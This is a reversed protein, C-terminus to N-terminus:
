EFSFGQDPSQESVEQSEELPTKAPWVVRKDAVVPVKVKWKEGIVAADRRSKRGASVFRVATPPISHLRGMPPIELPEMAIKLEPGLEQKSADLVCFTSIDSKTIEMIVLQSTPDKYRVCHAALNSISVTHQDLWVAGTKEASDIADFQSPLFKKIWKTISRPSVKCVRSIESVNWGILGLVLATRLREYHVPKWSIRFRYGCEKCLYRQLNKVIGDKVTKDSKCASCNM